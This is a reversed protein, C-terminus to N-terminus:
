RNSWFGHAAVIAAALGVLAWALKGISVGVLSEVGDGMWAAYAAFADGPRSLVQTDFRGALWAAVRISGAAVRITADIVWREFRVLLLGLRAPAREFIVATVVIARGDSRGAVAAWLVTMSVVLIAAVAGPLVFTMRPALVLLDSARILWLPGILATVIGHVVTLLPAADAVVRQVSVLWAAVVWICLVITVVVSDPVWRATSGGREPAFAFGLDRLSLSPGSPVLEISEGQEPVDVDVVGEAEKAVSAHGAHVRITHFGRPIPVDVFPSTAIPTRAEDLYVSAGPSHTLTLSGSAAPTPSSALASFGAPRRVNFERGEWTGASAWFLWAAGFALALLAAAGRIGSVLGVRPDRWGALWSGAAIALGWGILVAMLGDALFSVLAGALSLELCAWVGAGRERPPRIAVWIAVAFVLASAFACLAASVWDLLLVVNADSGGVRIGSAIFESYAVGLTPARLLVLMHGSAAGTVFGICGLGILTTASTKRVVSQGAAGSPGYVYAGLHLVLGVLLPAVLLWLTGSIVVHQVAGVHDLM